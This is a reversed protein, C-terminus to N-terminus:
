LDTNFFFADCIGCFYSFRSEGYVVFKEDFMPFMTKKQSKTKFKIMEPFLDKPLLLVKVYADSTKGDSNM